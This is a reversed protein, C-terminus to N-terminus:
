PTGIVTGDSKCIKTQFMSDAILKFTANAGAPDTPSNGWYAASCAEYLPGWSANIEPPAGGSVPPNGLLHAVVNTGNWSQVKATPTCLYSLLQSLCTGQENTLSPLGAVYAQVNGADCVNDPLNYDNPGAFSVECTKGGGGALCFPGVVCAHWDPATYSPPAAAPPPAGVSKPDALCEAVTHNTAFPDFRNALVDGDPAPLHSFTDRFGSDAAGVAKGYEFGADTFEGVRLRRTEDGISLDTQAIKTGDVHLIPLSEWLDVDVSTFGLNFHLGYHINANFYVDGATAQHSESPVVIFNSQPVKTSCGPGPTCAFPTPLLYNGEVISVQERFTTWREVTSTASVDGSITLDIQGIGVDAHFGGGAALVLSASVKDHLTLARDDAAFLLRPYVGPAWWRPGAGLTLPMAWPNYHSDDEFPTINGDNPGM